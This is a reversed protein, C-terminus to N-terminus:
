DLIFNFILAGVFAILAISVLTIQLVTNGQSYPQNFIEPGLVGALLNFLTGLVRLIIKRSKQEKTERKLRYQAEQFHSHTVIASTNEPKDQEAFLNALAVLNRQYEALLKQLHELAGPAFNKTDIALRIESSMVPM